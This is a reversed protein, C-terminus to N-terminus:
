TCLITLSFSSLSPYTIVRPDERDRLWDYPDIRVAGFKEFRTPIVPAMPPSPAAMEKAEAAVEKAEAAAIGWRWGPTLSGCIAWFGVTFSRRTLLGYLRPNREM